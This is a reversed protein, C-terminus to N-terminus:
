PEGEGARERECALDRDGICRLCSLALRPASVPFRGWLRLTVPAARLWRPIYGTHM